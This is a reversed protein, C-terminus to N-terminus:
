KDNAIELKIKQFIETVLAKKFDESLFYVEFEERHKKFWYAALMMALRNLASLQFKRFLSHSERQSDIEIDTVSVCFINNKNIDRYSNFQM